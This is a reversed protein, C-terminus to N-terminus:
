IIWRSIKIDLDYELDFHTAVNSTYCEISISTKRKM